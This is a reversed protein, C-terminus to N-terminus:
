EAPPRTRLRASLLWVVAVNVLVIVVKVLGPHRLLEWIELPILSGTAVVTLWEAWRQRMWLGAGEVAFLLAYALAAGAIIRAHSPPLHLLWSLARATVREQADYPLDDIWTRLRTTISPRLLHLAALAGSALLVSQTWKFLSIVRLSRAGPRHDRQKEPM